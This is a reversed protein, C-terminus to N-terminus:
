RGHDPEERSNTPVGTARSLEHLTGVVDRWDPDHRPDFRDQLGLEIGRRMRASAAEALLPQIGAHRLTAAVEQLEDARRVGHVGHRGLLHRVLDAFTETGFSEELSALVHEHVGGAYSATMAELALAELGKVLLSRCMKIGAAAGPEASVFRFRLGAEALPVVIAPDRRGAVLLPLQELQNSVNAMLAVDLYNAGKASFWTAASRKVHPAVSNIDLYWHSGGVSDVLSRAAVAAERCVVVSFIVQAQSALEEPSGVLQTGTSAARERILAREQWAIDYAVLDEFGASTLGQALSSGAEGFGLFGIRLSM